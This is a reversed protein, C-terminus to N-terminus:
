AHRVEKKAKNIFDLAMKVDDKTFPKKLITLCGAKLARQAIFDEDLASCAIVCIRPDEEILLKTTEIGNQLPMVMDMIIVDPRFHKNLIIVEQGDKAEAVVLHGLSECINKLAERIFGADDAIM